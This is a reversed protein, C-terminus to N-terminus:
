AALDVQQAAAAAQRAEARRKRMLIKQYERRADADRGRYTSSNPNAPRRKRPKSGLTETPEQSETTGSHGSATSLTAVPNALPPVTAPPASLRPVPQVPVANAPPAMTRPVGAPAIQQVESSAARAPQALPEAQRVPPQQRSEAREAQRKFCEHWPLLLIPAFPAIYILFIRLAEGVYYDLPSMPRTRPHDSRGPKRV